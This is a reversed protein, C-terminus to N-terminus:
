EAAEAIKYEFAELQSRIDCDDPKGFAVHVFPPRLHPLPDHLKQIRSATKMAGQMIAIDESLRDVPAAILVADHVPACIEVGDKIGFCCAFRLVAGNAQMPFNMLSRPNIEEGAHGAL